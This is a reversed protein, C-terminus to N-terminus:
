KGNKKRNEKAQKQIQILGDILPDYFFHVQAVTMEWPVIPINYDMYIQRIMVPVGEVAM